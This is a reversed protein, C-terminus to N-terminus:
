EVKKLTVKSVGEINNLMKEFESISVNLQDPIFYAEYYCKEGRLCVGTTFIIDSLHADNFTYNLQKLFNRSIDAIEIRLMYINDSSVPFIKMVRDKFHLVTLAPNNGLTEIFIPPFQIKEDTFRIITATTAGEKNTINSAM